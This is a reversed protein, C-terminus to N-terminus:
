QIRTKGAHITYLQLDDLLNVIEIEAMGVPVTFIVNFLTGPNLDQIASMGYGGVRILGPEIEAGDVAIFDETLKSKEVSVFTLSQHSFELEMGFAKMNFASSVKVPVSVTGDPRHVPDGFRLFRNDLWDEQIRAFFGERIKVTLIDGGPNLIILPLRANEGKKIRFVMVAMSGKDVSMIPTQSEASVRIVGRSIESASSFVFDETLLCSRTGLFELLEVPYALDFSFSRVGYPRSLIIPISVIDGPKSITDLAFLAQTEQTDEEARLFDNKRTQEVPLATSSAEACCALLSRRKLFREFIWQADESTTRGDCNVDSMIQQCYNPPIRGVFIEFTTQSDGATIRGNGDIDGLFSCPRVSFLATNPEPSYDTFDDIYNKTQLQTSTDESLNLCKVQLKLTIVSGSSLASIVTGGGVTGRIRIRGPTDKNTKLESWDSTLSGPSAGKFKFISKDYIFDFRFSSVESKNDSVRVLVDVSSGSTGEKSSLTMRINGNLIANDQEKAIIEKNSIGTASIRIIASGDSVDTDEVAQLVVPQPTNWNTTTFTLDESGPKVSIDPDGSVHKIKVNVNETPQATLWVTFSAEGDEPVLVTDLSTAFNLTDNDLERATINKTEVGSASIRITAEGNVIDVDDGASLEVTHPNNWNTSNFTLTAGGTVTIDSDGSVQSVTAAVPSAPKYSLTVTFTNSDEEEVTILDTSSFFEKFTGTYNKDEQDGTVNTYSRNAPTFAYGTLSPTATGSFGHDVTAVYVGSSNTKPPGPLGNIVVGSLPSVGDAVTGSITYTKLTATYNDTQNSTVNSYGTSIPSFNYGSKIPVATGSWGYDVTASYNGSANTAPNGPLGSMTVGQLGSGGETVKGSITFTIITATYNQGTQDSLVNSYTRSPPSFTHSALTPTVTGSWDYPVTASYNGSSDTSPDGPLGSMVVDELGVGDERVRGSITYTIATADYDQDIQDSLVNSYSRDTPSFTYGALTPTVTGSWDSDVTASYNGSANTKPDGPLGSMEVGQLGSGEETVTGRITYTTSATYNEGTQDSLVNSYTRDTPSFTYDTKTPTVTGSWDSPVTGSYDGNSDTVPSGPSGSM